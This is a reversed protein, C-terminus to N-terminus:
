KFCVIYFVRPPHMVKAKRLQTFDVVVDTWSVARLMTNIEYWPIAFALKYFPIAFVINYLPIAFVHPLEELQPAGDTLFTKPGLRVGEEVM